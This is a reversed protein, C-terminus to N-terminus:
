PHSMLRSIFISTLPLLPLIYMYQFDLIEKERGLVKIKYIQRVVILERFKLVYKSSSKQM